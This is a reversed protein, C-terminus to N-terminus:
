EWAVNYKAFIELVEPPYQVQPHEEKISVELARLRIVVYDRDEPEPILAALLEAIKAAIEIVFNLESQSEPAPLPQLQRSLYSLAAFRDYAHGYMYYLVGRCLLERSSVVSRLLVREFQRLIFASLGYEVLDAPNPLAGGPSRKPIFGRVPDITGLYEQVLVPHKKGPVRKSTIKFRQCSNKVRRVDYGKTKYPKAFDPLQELRM